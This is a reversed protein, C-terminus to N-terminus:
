TISYVEYTGDSAGGPSMARATVEIQAIETRTLNWIFRALIKARPIDFGVNYPTIVRLAKEIEVYEKPAVYKDVSHTNGEADTISVGAKTTGGFVQVLVQNDWEMLNFVLNKLGKESVVSEEPADPFEECYFDATTDQETTFSATGKLTRAIPTMTTPMGGSPVVDGFLIATLGISRTKKSITVM